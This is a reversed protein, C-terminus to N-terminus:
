QAQDTNRTASENERELLFKYRDAEQGLFDKNLMWGSFRETKFFEKMVDSSLAHGHYFTEGYFPGDFVYKVMVIQAGEEPLREEWGIWKSQM